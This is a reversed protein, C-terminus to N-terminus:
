SKFGRIEELLRTIFMYSFLPKSPSEELITFCLCMNSENFDTKKLTCLGKNEFSSLYAFDKGYTNREKMKCGEVSNLPHAAREEQHDCSSFVIFWYNKICHCM